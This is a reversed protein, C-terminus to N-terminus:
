VNAMGAKEKERKVIRSLYTIEKKLRKDDRSISKYWDLLGELEKIELEDASILIKIIEFSIDEFIDYRCVSYVNLCSEIYEPHEQYYKEKKLATRIKNVEKKTLFKYTDAYDGAIIIRDGAWSGLLNRKDQRAEIELDGGGRGNGDALLVTMALLTGQTSHGFEMLKAGDNFKHPCLYQKKDLNAVYYYQGM